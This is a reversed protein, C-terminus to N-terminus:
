LANFRHKLKAIYAQLDSLIHSQITGYLEPFELACDGIFEKIASDCCLSEFQEVREINQKIERATNFLEDNM